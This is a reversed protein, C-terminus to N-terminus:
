IKRTSKLLCFFALSMWWAVVATLTVHNVCAVDSIRRSVMSSDLSLKKKRKFIRNWEREMENGNRFIFSFTSQVKCGNVETYHVQWRWCTAISNESFHQFTEDFEILNLSFHLGIVRFILLDTSLLWIKM